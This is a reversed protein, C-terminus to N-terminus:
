EEWGDPLTLSDKWDGFFDVIGPISWEDEPFRSSWGDKDIFPSDAFLRAYGYKDVASYMQFINAMDKLTKVEGSMLRDYAEAKAELWEVYERTFHILSEESGMFLNKPKRGTEEEYRKMLETM